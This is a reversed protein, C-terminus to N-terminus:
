RCLFPVGGAPVPVMSNRVHVRQVCVGEAESISPVERGSPPMLVERRVLAERQHPLHCPLATVSPSFVNGWRSLGM